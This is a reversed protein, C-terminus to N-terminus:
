AKLFIPKSKLKIKTIKHKNKDLSLTYNITQTEKRPYIYFFSQVLASFIIPGIAIPNNFGVCCELIYLLWKKIRGETPILYGANKKKQKNNERWFKHVTYVKFDELIM